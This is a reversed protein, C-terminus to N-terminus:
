SRAHTHKHVYACAYYQIVMHTHSGHSKSTCELEVISAWLEWWSVGICHQAPSQNACLVRMCVCTCDHMEASQVEQMTAMIQGGEKGGEKGGERGGEKGGEKGGERGGERRVERKGREM